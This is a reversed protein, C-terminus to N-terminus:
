TLAHLIGLRRTVAEFSGASITRVIAGDPLDSLKGLKLGSPSTTDFDCAELPLIVTEVGRKGLAARLQRAHWDRSAAFLLVRSRFRRADSSRPMSSSQRFM